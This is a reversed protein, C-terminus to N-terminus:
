YKRQLVIQKAKEMMLHKTHNTMLLLFIKLRLHFKATQLIISNILIGNDQLRLITEIQSEKFRSNKM